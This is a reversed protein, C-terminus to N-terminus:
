RMKPFHLPKDEALAAVELWAESFSPHAHITETICEVTLENAIAMTMEAILAEAASGVVQAGLIRGTKKETVLQVFGEQEAVAQAKGLALMPLSSLKADFGKSKAQALSYGVSSMELFTYIVSPIADYRMKKEHGLITDAAVLGQHTAVHAYMFQGTVDGIAYIHPVSTKMSDDVQIAGKEVRVNAKELNLAESNLKRGVSILAKEVAITTNNSLKAEVGKETKTITQVSTATIVEIGEKKFAQTLAQSLRECELPVIRELMEVVYVKTGFSAFLSAFECGIVGGGVVLLSEPVKEITLLETSSLISDKDFPFASLERPESGTAIIFSKAEITAIKKEKDAVELSSSSIFAAHGQIIEIGYSRIVSTLSSRLSSVVEDTRKRMKTWDFTVEKATVGWKSAEKARRYVDANALYAKTPICGRNLCTGGIEGKEILCVKKGAQALRIAAPYGGPGGGLIACDFVKKEM